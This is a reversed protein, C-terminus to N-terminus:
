WKVPLQLARYCGVELDVVPVILGVVDESRRLSHKVRLCVRILYSRVQVLAHETQHIRLDFCSDREADLLAEYPLEFASM